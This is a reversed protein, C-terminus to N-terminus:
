FNRFRCYVSNNFDHYSPKVPQYKQAKEEECPFIRLGRKTTPRILWKAIMGDGQAKKKGIATINNLLRRLALKDGLVVWKVSETLIMKKPQDINKFKGMSTRIKGKPTKIWKEAHHEDFRKRFKNIFVIESDWYGKSALYVGNKDKQIPIKLNFNLDNEQNIQNFNYYDSGFYYRQQEHFILGDLYLDDVIHLPRELVAEIELREFNWEQKAIQKHANKLLKKLM